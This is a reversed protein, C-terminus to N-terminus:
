SRITRCAPGGISHLRIHPGSLPATQPAIPVYPDAVRGACVTERDPPRRDEVLFATVIEDPCARGRGFIVHPGGQQTILYADALRQYVSVGNGYPTAPDIDAGLVITTVGEARLPAPRPVNEAADKWYLCPLDGYFIFGM